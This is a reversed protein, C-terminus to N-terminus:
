STSRTLRAMRGDLLDFVAAFVIFYASRTFDGQIALVMAFFGFFLNATTLLNPLLYIHMALRKKPNEPDFAEIHDVAM